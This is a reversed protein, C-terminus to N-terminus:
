VEPLEAKIDDRITRARGAEHPRTVLRAGQRRTLWSWSWNLYVSLRNRFSVLLGLHVISWILWAVFGKLKVTGFDAVAKSRGIVAMSGWNRYRFPKGDPRGEIRNRILKAVYRGQQKAVPALGPLLSGDPQRFSAVDGIAFVDQMGPVSCDPGVVIAGNRAMDAGIWEGSKRAKTGACWIVCACDIWEDGAQLGETTIDRVPTDLVVEVGHRELAKLAYTSQKPTFSGLIKPGAEILKIRIEDARIHRFQGASSRTLEAISGAMEVGTPGGGVVAFTLLRRREAEDTIHEAAELSSLLKERVRLADDLTKLVPAVDAWEDHGFFSYDAGAALVLFDYAIGQGTDTMVRKAETDVGIVEAMLVTVNAAKLVSRTTEAIDAPSLAATAVQYLLPQFLHHNTKDILTVDHGSNELGKAAELGGFGAGVIVIQKRQGM